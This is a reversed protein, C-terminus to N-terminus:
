KHGLVKLRFIDIIEPKLDKGKEQPDRIAIVYGTIDNNTLRFRIFQKFNEIRGAGGVENNHGNFALCIGLYWGFWVCSMVAGVLGAFLAPVLEQWGQWNEASLPATMASSSYLYPLALMLAGYALWTLALAARRNRKLFFEGAKMAIFVLALALGWTLYTGKRILLFPVFIQLIAHWLGILFIGPWKVVPHRPQLLEGGAVMPLLILGVFTGVLILVFIMDSAVLAPLNNRGFSWLGFVVCVVSLASLVLPLAWDISHIYDRHSKKFLFESYRFSLSIAAGAWIISLMVMLSSGFPTIHARYPEAAAFGYFVMLSSVFTLAWLKRDPEAYIEPDVSAPKIQSKGARKEVRSPKVDAGQATTNSKVNYLKKSFTAIFLPISSLLTLWIGITYDWNWEVRCPWFFYPLEDPKCPATSTMPISATELYHKSAERDRIFYARVQSWFPVVPKTADNKLSEEVTTLPNISQDTLSITTPRVPEDITLKLFRLSPLNNIVQRSSQPVTAAFYIIFAIVFGALQVYGGRWISWFKFIRRAIEDTSEKVSPYLVQEQVEDVYTGSPHHFAGGIGSVVSAYSEASPPDAKSNHRPPKGNTPKPGWYRAYLHVDGSIDLRCHGEQMKADGSAQLNYKGQTDKEPLFPQSLGLQGIADAAKGDNPDAVKGFVTTPSCTAIILKKPPLIAEQDKPDKDCLDRFFKRQREDIQGVETDLGWLWWDHPLHLAVFSAEQVRNFGPIFLQPRKSEDLNDNLNGVEPEEKVPHRFQRRFGDLQDYYDHNGPIGFLPRNPENDSIGGDEILDAYAWSFPRQVRNALTMYDSMHYATDGGIFLFEGRPLIDSDAKREGKRLTEVKPHAALEQPSLNKVCLDSLCLYAISYTAKMGDGTDSIYDFWFEEKNEPSSKDAQDFTFVKTKMWDRPDLKKGYATYLLTGKISGMLQQGLLWAVPSKYKRKEKTTSVSQNKRSFQMNM